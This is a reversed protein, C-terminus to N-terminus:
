NKKKKERPTPTATPSAQTLTGQPQRVVRSPSATPSAQTLTGQPANTGLPLHNKPPASIGIAGYCEALREICHDQCREKIPGYSAANCGQWCENFNADCKAKAKKQPGTLPPLAWVVCVVSCLILIAAIYPRLKFM